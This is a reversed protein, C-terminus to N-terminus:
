PLENTFNLFTPKNKKPKKNSEASSTSQNIFCKSKESFQQELYNNNNERVKLFKAQCENVMM